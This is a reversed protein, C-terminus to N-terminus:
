GGQGTRHLYWAVYDILGAEVPIGWEFGLAKLRAADAVLSFPDGARSKGSFTVTAPKPWASLVAGAVSRVSTAKGTGVNIFTISDAAVTQLLNLARTVDRVDTWDRLEDGTGGLEVTTAGAALRTCLDWLLQKQLHSGYVSFLRAVVVQIGYSSAYSRCLEEMMLKHCGYPSFPTRSQEEPIGNAHGAGYVAASSVAVVRTGASELRVWDLLQASTVVTRTFDEHPSAIAAGVSAGGALHYVCDPKGEDLMLQRLNGSQIGGNLWRRVGWSRAEHEPWAGHGLGCVQHGSAALERALHRGIFGRGGTIWIRAM